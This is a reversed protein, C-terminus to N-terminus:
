ASDASASSTSPPGNLGTPRTAQRGYRSGSNDAPVGRVFRRLVECFEDTATFLPMHGKGEFAHISGHPLREAIFEAASFRILRDAKGHTVLVPIRIDALLPVVDITPDADFFSFLTEHPLELRKKIFLESLERTAPESFVFATHVKVIEELDGKEVLEGHRALFEDSFFDAHLSPACGITVLRSFLEPAAHALKFLLNAGRSIGVGVIPGGGLAELVARVDKVHDDLLYPRL